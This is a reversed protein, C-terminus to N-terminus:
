QWAVIDLVSRLSVPTAIAPRGTLEEHLLNLEALANATGVFKHLTAYRELVAGEPGLHDTAACAYRELAQVMPSQRARRLEPSAAAWALRLGNLADFDIGQPYAGNFIRAGWLGSARQLGLIGDIVKRPEPIPRGSHQYIWWFHAAGGLDITTPRRVIRDHWAQKWFGTRPDLRRDLAALLWDRWGMPLATGDPWDLAAAAAGLEHSGTWVQSWGLGDLWREIAAPSGLVAEVFRLPHAPAAGLLRLAAVAFGTAHFPHHGLLDGRDFRGTAPDQFGQLRAVWARRGETTTHADLADTIWLLHVAAASAYLDTAGGPTSVFAGRLDRPDFPEAPDRHREILRAVDDPLRPLALPARAEACHDAVEPGAHLAWRAFLLVGLVCAITAALIGIMARGASAVGRLSARQRGDVCEIRTPGRRDEDM